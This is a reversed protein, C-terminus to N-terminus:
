FQSFLYLGGGDKSAVPYLAPTSKASEVTPRGFYLISTIVAGAVAGGICIDTVLNLTKGSDRLDGAKAPDSGDNAKEFDSHKSLALVGTVVAGATLLGTAAAGIYVGTPVPRSTQTPPVSLPAPAPAAGPAPAPPAATAASMQFTHSVAEGPKAEFEWVQDANGALSATIRHHGARIGIKMPGNASGYQNLVRDGRVPIREDAISAGPPLSEVTVTVLGASLTDFDRQVQAREDSEIEKGGQKLYERYADVAEGDRELKMATLGINGLIKWSPSDAYAAKFERYADEYRAGDPDQLLAVGASFHKRASDSIAVDAHANLAALLVGLGLLPSVTRGIASSRFGTM